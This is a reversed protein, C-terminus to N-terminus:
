FPMVGLVVLPPFLSLIPALAHLVKDANPPVFDEKFFMKLADAVVHLLGALRFKRGFLTMDARNPGFRDQMMASQRREAWTLLGAVNVVFGVVILIKLIAFFLTFSTM